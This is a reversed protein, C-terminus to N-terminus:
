KGSLQSERRVLVGNEARLEGNEIAREVMGIGVNALVGMAIKTSKKIARLKRAAERDVQITTNAM